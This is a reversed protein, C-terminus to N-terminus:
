PYLEKDTATKIAHCPRCVACANAWTSRGGARMPVRHDTDVAILACGDYRLECTPYRKRRRRAISQWSRTYGRSERSPAARWMAQRCEDCRNASAPIIEGCGLCARNVM